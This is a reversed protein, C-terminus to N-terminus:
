LTTWIVTVTGTYTITGTFGGGGTWDGAINLYLTKATTSGDKVDVEGTAYINYLVPTTGNLVTVTQGNLCDEATAGVGSLVSQAGSGVLTGVGIDAAIACAGSAVYSLDLEAGLVAIRAVPLTGLAVGTALAAGAVTFVTSPITFKTTYVNGQVSTVGTGEIVYQVLSDTIKKRDRIKTDVYSM